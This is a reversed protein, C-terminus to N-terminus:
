RESRAHDAETHGARRGDEFAKFKELEGLRRGQDRLSARAQRLEALNAGLALVAGALIGWESLNL